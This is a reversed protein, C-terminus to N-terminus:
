SEFIHSDPSRAVNRQTRELEAWSGTRVRAVRVSSSRALSDPSEM